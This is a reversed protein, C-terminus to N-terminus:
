NIVLGQTQVGLGLFPIARPKVSGLQSHHSNIAIARPNLKARTINKLKARKVAVETLALISFTCNLFRTTLLYDLLLTM